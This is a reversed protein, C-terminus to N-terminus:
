GLGWCIATQGYVKGKKEPKKRYEEAKIWNEELALGRM